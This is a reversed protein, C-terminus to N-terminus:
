LFLAITQGIVLGMIVVPWIAATTVLMVVDMLVMPVTCTTTKLCHLYMPYAHSIIFAASTGILGYFLWFLGHVWVQRKNKTEPDTVGVVVPEAPPPALDVPTYKVPVGQNEM